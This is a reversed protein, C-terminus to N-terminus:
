YVSATRMMVECREGDSCTVSGPGEEPRLFAVNLFYQRGAELGCFSQTSVSSKTSFLVDSSQGFRRCGRRTWNDENSVPRFDGPCPSITVWAEGPRQLRYGLSRNVQAEHWSVHYNLDAEPTFPVVLYHSSLPADGISVAGVPANWTMAEGFEAGYFVQEWTRQVATYGSPQFLPDSSVIDCGRAAGADPSGADELSGDPAEGADLPPAEGSDVAADPGTPEGADIRSADGVSADAGGDQVAPSEPEPECAAISALVFFALPPAIIRAM